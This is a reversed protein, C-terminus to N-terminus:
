LSCFPLSQTSGAAQCPVAWPCSSCSLHQSLMNQRVWLLYGKLLAAWYQWLQGHLIRDYRLLPPPPVSKGLAGATLVTFLIVSKIHLCKDFEACGTAWVWVETVTWSWPILVWVLFTLCKSIRERTVPIQSEKHQKQNLVSVSFLWVRYLM